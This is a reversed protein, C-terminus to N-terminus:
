LEEHGESRTFYKRIGENKERAIERAERVPIGESMAIQRVVNTPRGAGMRRGGHQRRGALIEDEGMQYESSADSESGLFQYGVMGEYSSFESPSRISGSVSSDADGMFGWTDNLHNRVLQREEKELKDLVVQVPLNGVNALSNALALLNKPRAPLRKDRAPKVGDLSHNGQPVNLMKSAILMPVPKFTLCNAETQLQRDFNAYKRGKNEM